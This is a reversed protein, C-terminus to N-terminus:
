VSDDVPCQRIRDKMNRIVQKQQNEDLQNYFELLDDIPRSLRDPLTQLKAKVMESIMKMDPNEQDLEKRIDEKFAKRNAMAQNFGAEIKIKLQEYARQQTANLNLKEMKSDMHAIFRDKCAKNFNGPRHFGGGCLGKPGFGFIAAATLFIFGIVGAGIIVMKKRKTM